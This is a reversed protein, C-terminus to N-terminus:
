LGAAKNKAAAAEKQLQAWGKPGIAVDHPKSRLAPHADYFKAVAEETGSGYYDDNLHLSGFHAYGALNLYRKLDVIQACRGGPAVCPNLPANYVVPKPKPVPPPTPKTGADLAAQVDKRFDSMDVHGPDDKRRTHEKHGLVSKANWGHFDCVAAAVKVMAAYQAKVPAKSGDYNTEFGYYVANGDMDDPGPKLDTDISYDEHLIHEYTVSSGEGAHNARGDGVMYVTGDKGVVWNCLPGPLSRGDDGDFCYDRMAADSATSGTHHVVVGHVDGWAHGANRNHGVWGAHEKVTLGWKKFQSLMQAATMPKSM